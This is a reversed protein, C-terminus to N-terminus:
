GNCLPVHYCSMKLKLGGKYVVGRFCLCEAIEAKFQLLSFQEKQCIKSMECEKRYLIQTKKKATELQVSPKIHRELM